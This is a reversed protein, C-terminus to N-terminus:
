DYLIVHISKLEYQECHIIFEPEQKSQVM